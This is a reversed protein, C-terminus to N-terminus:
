QDHEERARDWAALKPFLRELDDEEWAEGAPEGYPQLDVEPMDEGFKEEYTERAVYGFLEAWADDDTGLLDVMSEPDTLAAEYAARGKAILWDCAYHFGDDSCGGNIVYFAGWLDWRYAARHVRRYDTDFALLADKGLPALVEGLAETQEDIDDRRSAEVLDWFRDPDSPPAPVPPPPANGMLMNIFRSVM